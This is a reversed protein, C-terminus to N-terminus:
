GERMPWLFFERDRTSPGINVLRHQTKGDHTAAIDYRGSPLEALFFPGRSTAELVVHGHADTIRVPIDALYENGSSSSGAFELSLFYDRMMSKIVTSQGLGVGGSLYGIDGEHQVPPPNEAAMVVRAGSILLCAALLVGSARVTNM